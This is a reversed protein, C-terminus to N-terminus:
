DLNKIFKGKQCLFKGNMELKEWDWPWKEPGEQQEKDQKSKQAGPFSMGVLLTTPSFPRPRGRM